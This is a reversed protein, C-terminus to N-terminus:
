VCSSGATPSPGNTSTGTPSNTSQPASSSSSPKEESSGVAVKQGTNYISYTDLGGCAEQNIGPCPENCEEDDVLTSKPPYKDGCYCDDSYMGAVYKELERCIQNCKGRSNFDPQPQILQLEGISSFCGAPKDSGLVPEERAPQLNASSVLTAAALVAAISFHKVAM